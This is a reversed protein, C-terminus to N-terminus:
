ADHLEVGAGNGRRVPSTEIYGIKGRRRLFRIRSWVAQETRGMERAVNRVKRTVEGDRREVQARFMRKLRLDENPKWFLRGRGNRRDERRLAQELWRSEENDLAREKGLKEALAVIIEDPAM